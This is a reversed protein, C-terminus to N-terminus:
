AVAERWAPAALDERVQVNGYRRRVWGLILLVAVLELGLLALLVPLALGDPTAAPAWTADRFRVSYLAIPDGADGQAGFGLVTEMTFDWAAHYGLAIGVRGTLLYCLGKVVAALLVFALFALNGRHMLVSIASAGLLAVVAPRM